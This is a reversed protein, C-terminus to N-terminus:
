TEELGIKLIADALNAVFETPSIGLQLCIQILEVVDVRRVGREIKFMYTFDQGLQKSLERQSVGRLERTERLMELLKDYGATRQSQVSYEGM